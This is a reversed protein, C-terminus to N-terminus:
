TGESKSQCDPCIYDFHPYYEDDRSVDVAKMRLKAWIEGCNDCPRTEPTVTETM